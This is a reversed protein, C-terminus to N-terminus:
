LIFDNSTLGNVNLVQIIMDSHNDGNHDIRVEAGAFKKVVMIQGDAEGGRASHFQKVFRIRTAEGRIRM